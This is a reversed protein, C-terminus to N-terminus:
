MNNLMLSIRDLKVKDDETLNIKLLDILLSTEEKTFFMGKSRMELGYTFLAQMREDGNMNQMDQALRAIIELKKKDIKRLSDENFIKTDM